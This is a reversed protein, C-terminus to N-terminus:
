QPEVVNTTSALMWFFLTWLYSGVLMQDLWHFQLGKMNHSHLVVVCLASMAYFGLGTLIQLERPPWHLKQLSSWWVLALLFAIRLIAIVELLVTYISELFPTNTPVTWRNLSWAIVCGLVTLLGLVAKNPPTARNYRIVSRGLEALIALQFLADVTIGLLTVPLYASPLPRAIALMVESCLCWILYYFFYPLTRYIRKWVALALLAVEMGISALWLALDVSDLTV